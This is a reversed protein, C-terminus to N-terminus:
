TLIKLERQRKEVAEGLHELMPDTIGMLRLGDRTRFLYESARGLRGEATALRDVLENEPLDECYSPGTPNITFGIAQGLNRGTEDEVDVWRPIYGSAVMERRWLLDLELAVDAESVRLVAGHCDGGPKLGLMMGPNDASGRGGKTALCFARHWGLAKALRTEVVHIAPNWMLSGYAFVWLGGGHEPRQALLTALNEAREEDTLVYTEPSTKRIIEGLGGALLMERTLGRSETPGALEPALIQPTSPQM